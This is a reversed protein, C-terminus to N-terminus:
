QYVVKGIQDEFQRVYEAYFTEAEHRTIHRNRDIDSDRYLPLTVLDSSVGADGNQGSASLGHLHVLKKLISQADADISYTIAGDFFRKAVSPKSSAPAPEANGFSACGSSALTLAPLLALVLGLKKM